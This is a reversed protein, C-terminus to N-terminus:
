GCIYEHTDYSMCYYPPDAICSLRSDCVMCTIGTGETGGVVLDMDANALNAVTEKKLSIKKLEKKIKM